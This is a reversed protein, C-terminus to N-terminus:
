LKSKKSKKITVKRKALEELLKEFLKGSIATEPAVIGKGKILHRAVFSAVASCTYGTTRAMSTIGNKEDYLDLMYYSMSGREGRVEVRMVTMDRSDGQSLKKELLALTFDYPSISLGNVEMEKRDFFGADILFKIKSAHGPWRLTVESMNRMGKMTYLLTALGDTYFGELEGVPRPFRFSMVHDFPKVRLLKGEKIVRADETYERILGVISFLLRYRFPEEPKQPLGGVLIRGDYGKVEKVGNALLIGGLGPALGCGPILMAGKSIAEENLSMQEDEFAIDVMRGGAKVAAINAYHVAGHPLASAVVDFSGIFRSARELDKVDLIEAVVRRGVFREVNSLKKEDSDAVVVTDFEGQQVLDKAIVSGMMGAGLVAVKVVM